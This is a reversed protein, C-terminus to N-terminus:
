KDICDKVSLVIENMESDLLEFCEEKIGSASCDMLDENVNNQRNLLQSAQMNKYEMISKTMNAQAIKLESFIRDFEKELLPRSEEGNKALEESLRKYHSDVMFQTKELNDFNKMLNKEIQSPNENAIDDNEAPSNAILERVSNKLIETKRLVWHVNIVGRIEQINWEKLSSSDIIETLKNNFFIKRQKEFGELSSDIEEQSFYSPHQHFIKRQKNKDNEPCAKNSESVKAPKKIEVKAINEPRLFHLEIFINDERASKTVCKRIEYKAEQKRTIGTGSIAFEYCSEKLRPLESQIRARLEGLRSGLDVDNLVAILENTEANKLSLM